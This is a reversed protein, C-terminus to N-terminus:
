TFKPYVDIAIALADAFFADMLMPIGYSQFICENELKPSSYLFGLFVM